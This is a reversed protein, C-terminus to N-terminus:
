RNTKRPSAAAAITWGAAVVTLAAVLWFEVALDNKWYPTDVLGHVFYVLLTGVAGYLVPRALGTARKIARWGRVMLAFYIWAFSILGLLGTESWFALWVNHPYIEPWQHESRLPATAAAYSALGPGVLPRHSIVVWTQKYIVLRQLISLGVTALREQVLPILVLVIVAASAIATIVLRQRADRAAFVAVVAAVVVATYTGRSLTLAIGPVLLALFGIAVLREQPTSAFLAFAAAFVLPPELYLAVSNSSTYVFSPPAGLVLHNHLAAIAFSVMEGAAFLASGVGAAVLLRRVDRQDQLTDVAIYFVAIAEIFYAKYIGAAARPSVAVAISIIGATLLLVIPIDLPTRRLRYRREQYLSLVYAAATALIMVELLTTPLPGIHGRVLYLPLGATIACLGWVTAQTWDVRALLAPITGPVARRDEM